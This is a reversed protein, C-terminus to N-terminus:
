IEPIGAIEKKKAPTKSNQNFQDKTIFIDDNQKKEKQSNTRCTIIRTNQYTYRNDFM